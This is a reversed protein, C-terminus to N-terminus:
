VSNRPRLKRILWKRRLRVDLALFTKAKNDDELFDCADLIFDDDMDPLAQVSAIVNEVDISNQNEEGEVKRKEVLCSVANAMEQLASLLRGEDVRAKKWSEPNENVELNRKTDLESTSRNDSSSDKEDTDTAKFIICLDNYYPVPRSMYQRADSNAEIYDQWSLDDAIVMQRFDDWSFGPSELLKNIVNYQRRFTKYRNKLIDVDYKFGFRANFSKIMEIWAQKRFLGNIKHAKQVHDVMLDIFYRDMTPQWYTRVRSGSIDEYESRSVGGGDSEKSASVTFDEDIMIEHLAELDANNNEFADDEDVSESLSKMPNKDPNGESPIDKYIQCLDYYYPITKIRYSRAEPHVKIYDDWVQNDATVMHRTRDWSFGNLSLLNHIAKYLNRLTKHRNKLVDKEYHFKFKTNFLTTMHKWAKKSFLHDDIRNGKEVQELMLDIFYRDMELTWITRLRDSNKQGM